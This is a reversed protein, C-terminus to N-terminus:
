SCELLWAGQFLITLSVPEQVLRTKSFKFYRSRCLPMATLARLLHLAKYPFGYIDDRKKRGM